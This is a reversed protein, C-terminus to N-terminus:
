WYNLSITSIAQTELDVTFEVHYAAAFWDSSDPAILVHEETFRFEIRGFDDFERIIAYSMDLIHEIESSNAGTQLGGPFIWRCNFFMTDILDLSDNEFFVRLMGHDAYIVADEFPGFIDEVEARTMRLQIYEGAENYLFNFGDPLLVEPAVIEGELIPEVGTEAGANSDNRCAVLLLPLLLVLLLVSLKKMKAFVRKYNTMTGNGFENSFDRYQAGTGYGSSTLKVM